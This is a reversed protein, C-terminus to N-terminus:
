TDARLFAATVERDVEDIHTQDPSEEETLLVSYSAPRSPEADFDFRDTGLLENIREDTAEVETEEELLLYRFLSLVDAEGDVERGSMILTASVVEEGSYYLVYAATSENYIEYSIHSLQDELAVKLPLQLTGSMRQMKDAHNEVASEDLGDTSFQGSKLLRGDEDYRHNTWAIMDLDESQPPSESSSVATANRGIDRHEFPLIM